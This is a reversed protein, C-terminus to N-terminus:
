RKGPEVFDYLMRPGGHPPIDAATFRRVHLTNQETLEVIVEEGPLWGLHVLIPRPVSVVTTNGDLRLKMRARM